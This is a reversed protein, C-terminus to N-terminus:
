NHESPINRSAFAPELERGIRAVSARLAGAAYNAQEDWKRM